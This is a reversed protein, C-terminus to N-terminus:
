RIAKYNLLYTARNMGLVVDATDSLRPPPVIPTFGASTATNISATNGPLIVAYVLTIEPMAFCIDLLKPLMERAYGQRWYEKWIDYGIEVSGEHRNLFHYGCTGVFEGTMASLLVFRAFNSTPTAKAYHTIIDQAEALTCPPEDFYRCMDIDSFQRYISAQDHSMSLTRWVLRQTRCCWVDMGLDEYLIASVTYM